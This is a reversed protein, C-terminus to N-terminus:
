QHRDGFLDADWGDYEAGTETVTVDWHIADLKQWDYSHILTRLAQFEPETPVWGRVSLWEGKGEEYSVHVRDFRRDALLTAQLHRTNRQRALGPDTGAAYISFSLLGCSAIVTAVAYAKQPVSSGAWRRRARVVCFWSLAFLIAFTVAVSAGDRVTIGILAGVACIGVLLQAVSFRM